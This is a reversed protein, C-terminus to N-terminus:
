RTEQQPAYIAELRQSWARGRSGTAEEYAEHRRMEEVLPTLVLPLAAALAARICDQRDGVSMGGYTVFGADAMADGFARLAAEVAEKPINM